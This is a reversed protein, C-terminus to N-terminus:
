GGWHWAGEEGFGSVLEAQEAGELLGVWGPLGLGGKQEWARATQGEQM